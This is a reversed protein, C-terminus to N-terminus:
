GGIYKFRPVYSAVAKDDRRKTVHEVKVHALFEGIPRHFSQGINQEKEEDTPLNRENLHICKYDVDPQNTATNISLGTVEYTNGNEYHIWKSGPHLKDIPIM